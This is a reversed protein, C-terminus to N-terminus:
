AFVRRPPQDIVKSIGDELKLSSPIWFLKQTSALVPIIVESESFFFVPELNLVAPMVPSEVPSDAKELEMALHCKGNCQLAPKDKNECLVTVYYNYQVLYNAVIGVKILAPIMIVSFLIFALLRKMSCIEDYKIYNPYSHRLIISFM